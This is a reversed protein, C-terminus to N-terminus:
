VSELSHEVAWGDADIDDWKISWWKHGHTNKYGRQVTGTEARPVTGILADGYPGKRYTPARYSGVSATTRVREGETFRRTAEEPRLVASEPTWGRFDDYQVQWWVVGRDFFQPQTIEGTTGPTFTEIEHREKFYAPVVEWVQSKTTLEIEEGVEYRAERRKINAEPAWGDSAKGWTIQWFPTQEDLGAGTTTRWRARGPQGPRVVPGESDPEDYASRSEIETTAVVVDNPDIQGSTVVSHDSAAGTGSVTGAAVGAATVASLVSRRTQKM